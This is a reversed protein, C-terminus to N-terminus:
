EGVEWKEIRWTTNCGRFWKDSYISIEKDSRYVATIREDDFKGVYFDADPLKPLGHEKIYDRASGETMHVSDLWDYYDYGDEEGNDTFVLYVYNIRIM